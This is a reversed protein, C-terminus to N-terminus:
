SSRRRVLVFFIIALITLVISLGVLPVLYPGSGLIIPVPGVILVAGGNMSGTNWATSVMILIMGVFIMVMAVFFLFSGVPLGPSARM